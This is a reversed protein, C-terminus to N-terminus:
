CIKKWYCYTTIFNKFRILLAIKELFNNPFRESRAIMQRTTIQNNKVKMKTTSEKTQKKKQAKM